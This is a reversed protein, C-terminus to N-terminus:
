KKSKSRSKKNRSNKQIEKGFDAFFTEMLVTDAIAFQVALNGGKVKEGNGDMNSGMGGDLEVSNFKKNKKLYLGLPVGMNILEPFENTDLPYIGKTLTDVNKILKSKALYTAM